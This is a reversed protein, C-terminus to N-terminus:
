RIVTLLGGLLAWAPPLWGQLMWCIAACMAAVSLWVGVFPHGGIITGTALFLGQVPPYKSAYTPEYIAHFTELHVWMPPTPNTLRGHAFTDAALLYSFEDQIFPVPIPLIPLLAARLTLAFFACILISAARHRAVTALAREIKGFWNSGLRPFTLALLLAISVFLSELGLTTMTGSNHAASGGLTSVM